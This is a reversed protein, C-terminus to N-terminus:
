NYLIFTMIFYANFGNTNLKQVISEKIVEIKQQTDKLLHARLINLEECNEGDIENELNNLDMRHQFILNHRDELSSM